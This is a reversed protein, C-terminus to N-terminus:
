PPPVPNKEVWLCVVRAARTAQGPLRAARFGGSIFPADEYCVGLIQIVNKNKLRSMFTVVKEFANKTTSPAGSKFKKVAVLTSKTKDEDSESM